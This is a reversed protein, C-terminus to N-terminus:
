DSVSNLSWFDITLAHDIAIAEIRLIYSENTVVTCGSIIKTNTVVRKMVLLHGIKGSISVISRM